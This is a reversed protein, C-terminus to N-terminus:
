TTDLAAAATINARCIDFKFTIYVCALYKDGTCLISHWLLEGWSYIQKLTSKAVFEAGMTSEICAHAEVIDTHKKVIVEM